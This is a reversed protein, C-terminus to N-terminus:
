LRADAPSWSRSRPPRAHIIMVVADGEDPSRGLRKRIDDKSEILVKGGSTMKWRPATLDGLLTDSQEGGDLYDNETGGDLRDNGTGAFLADNGAGGRLTDDGSQSSLRDAGDGGDLLDNGVGGSATDDGAGGNLVDNGRFGTLTDNGGLGDLRDDGRTGRLTDPGETGTQVALGPQVAVGIPRVRGLSQRTLRRFSFGSLVSVTGESRDAIYARSGDPSFAPVGPGRGVRVRQSVRGRGFDVIAAVTDRGSAGVIGFRGSPSVAVGGGIARGLGIRAIASATIRNLGVLRGGRRTRQSVWPTGGRWAVGGINALPKRASLRLKVLDLLGVRSRGLSVVARAGDPSVALQAPTAGGLGISGAPAMRATDVVEVAGTRGAYIRAGDPSISLSTIGGALAATSVARRAALDIAVVRNGTAVYARSGDPAVAVARTRGGVGIRAGIRNTSVETLTVNGDGTAVVVVRAEPAAAPILCLLVTSILLRRM